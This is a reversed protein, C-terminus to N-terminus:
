RALSLSQRKLFNQYLIRIAAEPDKYYEDPDLNFRAWEPIPKVTPQQMAFKRIVEAHPKLTGDVRVLGFHREHWLEDCPPRLWLEPSYDTYCWVFAGTSGVNLLNFLVTEVYHALDEESAMFQRHVVGNAMWKMTHSQEGPAATCGGFEEILVPKGSLAATLASTFPAFHPDLPSQAWTEVWPFAHMVAIDTEAYMHDIRLGNDRSLCDTHLGLTIPHVSDFDRIVNVMRQVWARGVVSNTSPAFISPENGLNWMWIAPHDSLTSVVTQLHLTAAQLAIAESYPNNYSLSVSRGTSVVPVVPNRWQQAPKHLLWRPSWNFGSMYGTFFTISLQLRNELALDCVKILHNLASNSVVNPEPQFDEWLLFLRVATMGLERILAFDDAVEARDFNSWWYMAKRRPWYNVGLVFPDSM